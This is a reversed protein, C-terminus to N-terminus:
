RQSEHSEDSSQRKNDKGLVQNQILVDWKYVQQELARIEEIHMARVADFKQFVKHQANPMSQM